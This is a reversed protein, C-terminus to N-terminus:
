MKGKPDDRLSEVGFAPVTKAGILLLCAFIPVAVLQRKSGSMKGEGQLKM